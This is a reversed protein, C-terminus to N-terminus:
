VMIVQYIFIIFIFLHKSETKDCVQQKKKKRERWSM